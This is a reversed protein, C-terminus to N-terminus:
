CGSAPHPAAIQLDLSQVEEWQAGVSGRKDEKCGLMIVLTGLQGHGSDPM